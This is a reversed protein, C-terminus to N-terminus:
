SGFYAVAGVVAAILALFSPGCHDPHEGAGEDAPGCSRADAGLLDGGEIEDLDDDMVASRLIGASDHADGAPAGLGRTATREGASVV